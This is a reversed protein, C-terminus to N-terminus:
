LGPCRSVRKIAAGWLINYWCRRFPWLCRSLPPPFYHFIHWKQSQKIQTQYIILPFFFCTSFRGKKVKKQVSSHLLVTSMWSPPPMPPPPPTFMSLLISWSSPELRFVTCVKVYRKRVELQAAALSRTWYSPVPVPQRLYVSFDTPNDCYIDRVTEAVIAFMQTQNWRRDSQARKTRMRSSLSLPRHTSPQHLCIPILLTLPFCSHEEGQENIM